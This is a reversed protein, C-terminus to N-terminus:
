GGPSLWTTMQLSAQCRATLAQQQSRWSIHNNGGTEEGYESHPATFASLEHHQLVNSPRDQVANTKHAVTGEAAGRFHQLFHQRFHQSNSVSQITNDLPLTAVAHVSGRFCTGKKQAVMRCHKAVQMAARQRQTGQRINRGCKLCDIPLTMASVVVEDGESDEEDDEGEFEVAVGIEDDLADGAVQWLRM